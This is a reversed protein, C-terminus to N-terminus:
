ESDARNEDSLEVSNGPLLLSTQRVAVMAPMGAGKSLCVAFMVTLAAKKFQNM